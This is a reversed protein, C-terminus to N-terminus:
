KQKAERQIECISIYYDYPIEMSEAAKTSHLLKNYNMSIYYYEVEIYTFIYTKRSITCINPLNLKSFRTQRYNKQLFCNTKKDFVNFLLFLSYKIFYRKFM